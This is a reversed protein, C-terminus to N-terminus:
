HFDRSKADLNGLMPTFDTFREAILHIVEREREVRREVGPLRAQL